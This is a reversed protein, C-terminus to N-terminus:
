LKKVCRSRLESNSANQQKCANQIKQHQKQWQRGFEKEFKVVFKIFYPKLEFGLIKRLKSTSDKDETGFNTPVYEHYSETIM